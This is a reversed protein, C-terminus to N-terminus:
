DGNTAPQPVSGSRERRPKAQQQRNLIDILKFCRNVDPLPDINEKMALVDLHLRNEELIDAAM